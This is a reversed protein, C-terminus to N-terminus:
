AKVERVQIAETFVPDETPFPPVRSVAVSWCLGMLGALGIIVGVSVLTGLFSDQAAITAQVDVVRHLLVGLVASGGAILHIVEKRKLLRSCLLLGPVFVTLALSAYSLQEWPWTRWRLEIHGAERALNGMWIPLYQCWWLYATFFAFAWLLNGLDLLDEEAIVGEQHETRRRFVVAMSTLALASYFAGSVYLPPYVTSRFPPNLSIHFDMALLVGTIFFLALVVAPLRLDPRAAPEPRGEPRPRLAFHALAAYAALLVADRVLISGLIEVPHAAAEKVGSWLVARALPLLALLLVSVPLFAGLASANREVVRGWRSGTLYLAAAVAPGGLAAGTWFLWGALYAGWAAGPSFFLGSVFALLGIFGCVMSVSRLRTPAAAPQAAQELRQRVEEGSRIGGYASM